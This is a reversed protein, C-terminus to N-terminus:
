GERKEEFSRTIGCNPSSNRKQLDELSSYIPNPSEIDKIMGEKIDKILLYVISPVAFLIIVSFIFVGIVPFLEIRKQYSCDSLNRCPVCQYSHHFLFNFDSQNIDIMQLYEHDLCIPPLDVIFELTSSLSPLYFISLFTLLLRYSWIEFFYFFKEHLDSCCQCFSNLIKSFGCAFHLLSLFAFVIAFFYAFFWPFITKFVFIFLFSIILDIIGIIIHYVWEDNDFYVAIKEHNTLMPGFFEAIKSNFNWALICFLLFLISFIIGLIFYSITFEYHLHVFFFLSLFLFIFPLLQFIITGLPFRGKICFYIYL